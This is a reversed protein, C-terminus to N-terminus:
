PRPTERPRQLDCPPRPGLERLADREMQQMTRMTMPVLRDLGGAPDSAPVTTGVVRFDFGRSASLDRIQVLRVVSDRAPIRTFSIILDANLREQVANVTRSSALAEAVSDQAVVFYRPHNDVARRPGRPPPERLEPAALNM